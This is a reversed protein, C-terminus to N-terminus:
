VRKGKNKKGTKRQTTKVRKSKVGTILKENKLVTAMTNENFCPDGRCLVTNFCCDPYVLGITQQKYCNNKDFPEAFVGCSHCEYGDKHCFCQVCGPLYWSGGPKVNAPCPDNSRFTAAFAVAFITVFVVARLPSSSM